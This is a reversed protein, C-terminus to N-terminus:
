EHRVLADDAGGVGARVAFDGRDLGRGPLLVAARYRVPRPVRRRGGVVEGKSTGGIMSLLNRMEDASLGIGNDRVVLKEYGMAPEIEIAGEVDHGLEARAKIADYANQILERLYVRGSSYLHHGLIDLIGRLDVKFQERVPM